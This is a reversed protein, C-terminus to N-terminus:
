QDEETAGTPRYSLIVVGSGLAHTGTLELRAANGERFLMESLGGTGALVPNVGLHLEDLLGHEILTQAVPGFGYMLIDEGPEQKITTVAEALESRIVVSNTWEATEMTTSAVYKKMGNIKDAIEGTRSPWSEAFGEYTRRGMLLADSAALQDSFHRTLEGDVYDFHWHEMLEILGDLSMHTINVIRRM